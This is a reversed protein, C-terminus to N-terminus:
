LWAEALNVEPYLAQMLRAGLQPEIRDLADALDGAVATRHDHLHAQHQSPPLKALQAKCDAARLEAAAVAIALETHTPSLNTM